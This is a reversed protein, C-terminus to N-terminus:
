RPPEQMARCGPCGEEDFPLGHLTCHDPGLERHRRAGLAVAGFLAVSAVVFGIVQQAVSAGGELAVCAGGILAVITLGELM